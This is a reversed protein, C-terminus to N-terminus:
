RKNLLLLKQYKLEPVYSLNGHFYKKVDIIDYEDSDILATDNRTPEASANLYVTLDYYIERGQITVRRDAQIDQEVYGIYGSKSTNYIPDGYNDASYGTVMTFSVNRGHRELFGQIDM